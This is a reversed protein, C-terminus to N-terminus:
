EDSSKFARMISDLVRDSAIQRDKEARPGGILLFAAAAGASIADGGKITCLRDLNGDGSGKYVEFRKGFPRITAIPAANLYESGEFVHLGEVTAVPKPYLEKSRYYIRNDDISMIASEMEGGGDRLVRDGDITLFPSGFFGRVGSYARAKTRKAVKKDPEAKQDNEVLPRLQRRMETLDNVNEKSVVGLFGLIRAANYSVSGTAIVWKYADVLGVGRDGPMIPDFAENLADMSGMEVFVGSRIKESRDRLLAADEGRGVGEMVEAGRDLHRALEPHKQGYLSEVIAIASKIHHDAESFREERLFADSLSYHDEAVIASFDGYVGKDIELSRRLMSEAIAFKGSSALRAGLNRSCEAVLEPYSSILMEAMSLAKRGFDQGGPRAGQVMGLANMARVLEPSAGSDSEDYIELATLLKAEAELPRAQKILIDALQIVKDAVALSPHPHLKADLELSYRCLEAASPYVAADRLFDAFWSAIPSAVEPPFENGECTTKVLDVYYKGVSREEGLWIWYSLLEVNSNDLIEMALLFDLLCEKLDDEAGMEKLLWPLEAAKRPSVDQQCFYNAISYRSEYKVEDDPLWRSEVAQRLYEHGFRLLGSNQSLANEAALYFPTWYRHPLPGDGAGLIDLLESESLGHRSCAILSLARRVLGPAEEDQSFDREWRTLIKDFLEAPGKATLYEETKAELEEHKGFQRLEDLVARLYLPNLAARTSELDEIVEAPPTKSFIRFYAL